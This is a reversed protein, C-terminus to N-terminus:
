GVLYHYLNEYGKILLKGLPLYRRMTFSNLILDDFSIDNHFNTMGSGLKFIIKIFFDGLDILM